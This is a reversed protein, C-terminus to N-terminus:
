KMLNIIKIVKSESDDKKFRYIVIRNEDSAVGYCELDNIAVQCCLYTKKDDLIKGRTGDPLDSEMNVYEGSLECMDELKRFEPIELKKLIEIIKEKM